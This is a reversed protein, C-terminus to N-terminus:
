CMRFFQFENSSDLKVSTFNQKVAENSHKMLMQREEENQAQLDRQLDHHRRM